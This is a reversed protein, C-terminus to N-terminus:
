LIFSDKTQAKSSGLLYLNAGYNSIGVLEAQSKLIQEYPKCYFCGHHPCNFSNLQRAVKIKLGIKILQQEAKDANPLPQEEPQTQKNLYWYSQKEVPRTQCNAALLYYIPLQWSQKAEPSLGTKFDIIHVSDQAELYQLWDIRGCLILNDAESLWYYPLEKKIKIAKQKLPGPHQYLYSLMSEARNKALREQQKDTFGGPKGSYKSWIRDLLVTFAIALRDQTPIQSLQEIVEHVASGVTLAPSTIQIKNNSAPDKYVNKLFYARPCHLFDTISSYSLWVARYQEKTM